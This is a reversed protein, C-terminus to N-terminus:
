GCPPNRRPAMENGRGPNRNGAEEMAEGPCMVGGFVDGEGDSSSDFSCVSSDETQCSVDQTPIPNAIRDNEGTSIHARYHDNAM